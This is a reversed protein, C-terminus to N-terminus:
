PLGFCAQLARVARKLREELHGSIVVFPLNRVTLETYFLDLLTRRRPRSIPPPDNERPLHNHTLPHPSYSHTQPNSLIWPDCQHFKFQSWIKVVILETDCFLFRKAKAESLAERKLQGRAIAGLDSYQYPRRLTQLYERAYEPVWLTDYHAALAAALTSKGTSEPGTIAIRHIM